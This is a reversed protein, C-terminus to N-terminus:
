FERNTWQIFLPYVTFAYVECGPYRARELGWSWSFPSASIACEPFSSGRTPPKVQVPGYQEMTKLSRSLNPKKRGTGEALEALLQPSTRRITELLERNKARFPCPKLRATAATM